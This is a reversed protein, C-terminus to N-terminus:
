PYFDAEHFRQAYGNGHGHNARAACARRGIAILRRDGRHHRASDDLLRPSPRDAAPLAVRLDDAVRLASVGDVTRRGIEPEDPALIPKRNRGPLRALGGDRYLFHEVEVVSRFLASRVASLFM